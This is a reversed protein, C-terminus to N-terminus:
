SGVKEGMAKKHDLQLGNCTHKIKETMLISELIHDSIPVCRSNQSKVM